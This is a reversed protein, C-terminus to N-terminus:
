FHDWIISIFLSGYSVQLFYVDILIFYCSMVIFSFMLFQAFPFIVNCLAIISWFINWFYVINWYSIVLADHLSMCVISLVSFANTDDFHIFFQLWQLLLLSSYIHYCYPTFVVADVECLTTFSQKLVLLSGFDYIETGFRLILALMLFILLPEYSLIM